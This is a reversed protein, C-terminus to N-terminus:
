KKELRFSVTVTTEVEVPKGKVYYPKYKWIKVAEVAAPALLPHGDVVRIERVTGDIGIV